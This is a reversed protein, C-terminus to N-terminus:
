PLKVSKDDPNVDDTKGTSKDDPNVDDFNSGRITLISTM